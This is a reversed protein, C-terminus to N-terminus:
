RNNNYEFLKEAADWKQNKLSLAHKTNKEVEISRVIGIQMNTIKIFNEKGKSQNTEQRNKNSM